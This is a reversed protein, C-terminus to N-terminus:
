LPLQAFTDVVTAHWVLGLGKYWLGLILGNPRRGDKTLSAPELTSTLNM